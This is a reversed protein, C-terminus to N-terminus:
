KKHIIDLITQYNESTYNGMSAVISAVEHTTISMHFDIWVEIVGGNGQTTEQRRHTKLVTVTFSNMIDRIFYIGDKLHFYKYKALEANFNDESCYYVDNKGKSLLLQLALTPEYIIM